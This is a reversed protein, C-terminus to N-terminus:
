PSSRRAEESSTAVAPRSLQRVGLPFELAACVGGVLWLAIVFIGVIGPSVGLGTIGVRAVSGAVGAIAVVMAGPVLWAFPGVREPADAIWMAVVVSVIWSVAVAARVPATGPLLVAFTVLGWGYACVALTAWRWRTQTPATARVRGYTGVHGGLMAVIAGYDAGLHVAGVLLLAFLSALAAAVTSLPIAILALLVAALVGTEPGVCAQCAEGLEVV